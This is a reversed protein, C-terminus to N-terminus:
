QKRGVKNTPQIDTIRYCTIDNVKRRCLTLTADQLFWNVILGYKEKGVEKPKRLFRRGSLKMVDLTHDASMDLKFIPHDMM